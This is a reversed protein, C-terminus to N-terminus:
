CPCYRLSINSRNNCRALNNSYQLTERTIKLAICYFNWLTEFVRFWILLYVSRLRTSLLFHQRFFYIWHFLAIFYYITVLNWIVNEMFIKCWLLEGIGLIRYSKERIELCFKVIEGLKWCYKLNKINKNRFSNFIYKTSLHLM